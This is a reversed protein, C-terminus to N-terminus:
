KFLHRTYSLYRLGGTQILSDWHHRWAELLKCNGLASVSADHHSASIKRRIMKAAAPPPSCELMRQFLPIHSQIYDQSKSLSNHTDHHRCVAENLIIIRKKDLALRFGLWTWEAYPHYNHFYPLGIAKTRFLANGSTLWNRRLLCILPDVKVKHLNQYFLNDIDNSFIYANAILMDARPNARLLSIKQEMTCPLYEDDDDLTSFFETRVCERGRLIAGPASAFVTWEIEVDKQAQLWELVSLDFRGGNIVVIIRVPDISSARISDVARALLKAREFSAM